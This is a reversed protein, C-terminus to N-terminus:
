FPTTNEGPQIQFEPLTCAQDEPETIGTHDWSYVTRDGFDKQYIRRNVPDYDCQIFGTEGYSRNKTVRINPKEISFVNDALNTIVSSGSVTDNSFTSGAKEKRPHAVVLVHVKYKSAFAKVKAMFKAQAKNEEDSTTLLSMLNDILFLKCGYRRACMEFCKIVATSSDEEFVYGNDFLYFKGAMWNKIREQIEAPVKCIRKGSRPDTVYTVYKSETAPLLIWDLFRAASLEGSYACCSYGQEIGKLLFTSAITSKGEGRQGSLITVGAEEFGGIMNDLRPIGTLIRPISAPDIYNITSVDLVGKIPAPECTSIIAKLGEPGYCNLIENADKCIRNYSKGNFVLEPYEKPIQCRDEGLRKMLTTIMEMGPEDSDGFLIIENFRELWEWCLTIWELNNCGCPVSVVNHVGAEYVSLADVEGETIVLPKNFAVNDMGFLIPETNTDQWEKPGDEKTHKKPKRYKVFVLENNRYFPFVINGKEDSAVKFDKLTDESIGRTSFYTIIEDTLPMLKEPDPKNYTKKAARISQPLASFEFATEGFFNCLQKFSGERNGNIGPCSGRKDSWAGNYLGVAFTDKDAHNGGHCIPCYTPIVQGNRIRYEGFKKNALEIVANAISDM